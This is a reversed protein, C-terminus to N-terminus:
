IYNSKKNSPYQYIQTVVHRTQITKRLRQQIGEWKGAKKKVYMEAYTAAKIHDLGPYKLADDGYIVAKLNNGSIKVKAKSVLFQKADLLYILEDIFNYLLSENDKGEIEIKKTKAESVKDSRALIESIAEATNEFIKELTKGYAKFKIDATHEFFQFNKNKM